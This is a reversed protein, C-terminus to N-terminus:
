LLEVHDLDAQRFRGGWTLGVVEACAGFCRWLRASEGQALSKAELFPDPGQFVSDVAHGLGDAKPQHNSPTTIGDCFTVIKGPVTRGQAYLAIQRERSRVGELPRMPHGLAAMAAYVLNLRSILPPYVGALVDAM